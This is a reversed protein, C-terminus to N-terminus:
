VRRKRALLIGGGTLLVAIAGGVDPGFEPVSRHTGGQRNNNQGQNNANQGSARGALLVTGLLMAFALSTVRRM